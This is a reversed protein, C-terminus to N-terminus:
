FTCSILGWFSYVYRFHVSKYNEGNLFSYPTHGLDYIMAFSNNGSIM